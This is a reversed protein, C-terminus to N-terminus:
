SLSDFLVWGVVASAVAVGALGFRLVRAPSRSRAVVAPQAFPETTDPVAVRGVRFATMADRDAGDKGPTAPRAGSGSPFRLDRWEETASVAGATLHVASRPRDVSAV